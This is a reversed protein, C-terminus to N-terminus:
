GAKLAEGRAAEKAKKPVIPRGSKDRKSGAAVWALWSDLFERYIKRPDLRKPNDKCATREDDWGHIQVIEAGRMEITVLPKHPRTRDRLFLITTKGTVHRDAYGGVCHKLAKGEAIIEDAGLPPRILYRGDSYTYRPALSKLRAREKEAAISKARAARVAAAAETAQDHHAKLGKPMLFVDNTLDYGLFEAADIYDCWWEAIWAKPREYRRLRSEAAAERDFYHILRVASLRHKRMHRVTRVFWTQGIDQRIQYLESLTAAVKARRLSKYQALVELDRNGALFETLETKNLCLGRRPDPDYWNFAAANSKGREAFDVVAGTMGSKTLMEVHRPYATCLTLYRMLNSGHKLYDRLGCWRFPSKDVEDLGILDYGLGYEFCMGFPEPLKYGTRLGDTKLSDFYYWEGGYYSRKCLEVRGPAFRYIAVPKVAPKATLMGDDAYSKIADYCVAWLANRHWRLVAARRFSWLNKRTGSRGIEKVPSVKGCFPCAKPEPQPTPVPASMYGLHCGFQMPKQEPTHQADMIESTAPLEAHMGCCTTWIERTKRRRFIYSKFLGNIESLEDMRLKPALASLRNASDVIGM